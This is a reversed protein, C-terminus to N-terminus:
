VVWPKVEALNAIAVKTMPIIECVGLIHHEKTEMTIKCNDPYKVGEMALQSLTAAGSWYYVRRVDTMLVEDRTKKKLKGFFVGADRSRVLVIKGIM